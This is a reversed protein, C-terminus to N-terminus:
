LKLLDELLQRQSANAEFGDQKNRQGGTVTGPVYM